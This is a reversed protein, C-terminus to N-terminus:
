VSLMNIYLVKDIFLARKGHPCSIYLKQECIEVLHKLLPIFIGGIQEESYSACVNIGNIIQDFQM